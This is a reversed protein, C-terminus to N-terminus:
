EGCDIGIINCADCLGLLRSEAQIYESDKRVLDFQEYWALEPHEKRVKAFVKKEVTHFNARAETTKDYLEQKREKITKKLM